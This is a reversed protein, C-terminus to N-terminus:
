ARRQFRFFNFLQERGAPTEHREEHQEQLAFEPGLEDGLKGADYQVIDLGSCKEPGGPAFTALIAQGGPALAQRLVAMYRRRDKVETLFHFAARDHWLDFRKSPRYATVDAEIWSIQGARLGLRGAAQALAAASIDLVSLDRYGLDLLHDVLLSAGGGIDILAAEKSIGAHVIMSLSRSPSRQYWSTEEAAKGGYVTEWHQKRDWKPRKM